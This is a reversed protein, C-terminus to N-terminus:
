DETLNKEAENIQESTGQAGIINEKM